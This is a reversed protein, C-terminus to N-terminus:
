GFLIEMLEEREVGIHEAIDLLIASLTGVKLPVHKPITIHHESPEQTTMRIHSGKQRSIVNGFKKSLLKALEAGNLNRPTKM